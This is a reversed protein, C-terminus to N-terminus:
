GKIKQPWFIGVLLGALVFYGSNEPKYKTFFDLFIIVSLSTAWILPNWWKPKLLSIWFHSVLMSVGFPISFVKLRYDRAVHSIVPIGPLILAMLEVILLFFITWILIKKTINKKM